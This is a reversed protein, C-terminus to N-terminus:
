EEQEQTPTAGNPAKQYQLLVGRYRYATKKTVAQQFLGVKEYTALESQLSQSLQKAKPSKTRPKGKPM